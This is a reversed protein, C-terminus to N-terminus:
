KCRITDIYSMGYPTHEFGIWHPQPYANPTVRIRHFHIYFALPCRSAVYCCCCCTRLIYIIRHVLANVCVCLSVFLLTVYLVEISSYLCLAGVHFRGSLGLADVDIHLFFVFRFNHLTTFTWLRVVNRYPIPLCSAFVKLIVYWSECSKWSLEDRLSQSVSATRWTHTHSHQRPKTNYVSTKVNSWDGEWVGALVILVLVCVCVRPPEIFLPRAFACLTSRFM